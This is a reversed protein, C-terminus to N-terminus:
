IFSHKKEDFHHHFGLDNLRDLIWKFSEQSRFRGIDKDFLKGEQEPGLIYTEETLRRKDLEERDNPLMYSHVNEGYSKILLSRFYQMEIIRPERYPGHGFLYLAVKMPTAKRSSFQYIHKDAMKCDEM